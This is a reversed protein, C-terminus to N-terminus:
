PTLFPALEVKELLSVIHLAHSFDACLHDHRLIEGLKAQERPITIGCARDRALLCELEVVAIPPVDIGIMQKRAFNGQDVLEGLFETVSKAHEGSEQM